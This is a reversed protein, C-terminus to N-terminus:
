RAPTRGGPHDHGAPRALLTETRGRVEDRTLVGREALVAELAALFLDYYPYPTGPPASREWAGIAAVLQERFVDWEFYGRECLSRAMGFVRGQWPEEFILEGNATPPAAAGGLVDDM